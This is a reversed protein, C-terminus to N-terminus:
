LTDLYLYRLNPFLTADADATDASISINTATLLEFVSGFTRATVTFTEMEFRRLSSSLPRLFGLLDDETLSVGRLGCDELRSPANLSPNLSAVGAFNREDNAKITAEERAQDEDQTTVEYESDDNLLDDLTVDLIRESISISLSELSRLPTILGEAAYDISSFENGTISCRHLETLGRQRRLWRGSRDGPDMPSLLLNTKRM